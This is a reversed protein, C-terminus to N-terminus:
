PVEGGDGEVHAFWSVADDALQGALASFAAARADSGAVPDVGVRYRRRDGLVVGRPELSFRLRLEVERVQLGADDIAIPGDTSRLIEVGMAPGPGLLGQRALAAALADAVAPALSAEVTAGQVAGVGVTGM